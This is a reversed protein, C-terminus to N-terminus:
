GGIEMKFENKITGCNQCPNVNDFANESPERLSEVATRESLDEDMMTEAAGESDVYCPASCSLIYILRTVFDPSFILGHGYYDYKSYYEGFSNFLM